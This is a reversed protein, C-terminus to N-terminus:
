ETRKLLYGKYFRITDTFKQRSIYLQEGGEFIIEQNKMKIVKELNIICRSHCKYFRFDLFQEIDTLKAYMCYTEDDARVAIKRGNSEIYVIDGIFVKVAERTKVIPVFAKEEKEM